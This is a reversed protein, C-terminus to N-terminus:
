QNNWWKLTQIWTPATHYTLCTSWGLSLILRSSSYGEPTMIRQTIWWCVTKSPDTLLFILILPSFLFSSILSIGLFHSYVSSTFVSLLMLWVSVHYSPSRTSINGGHYENCYSTHCLMNSYISYLKYVVLWVCMCYIPCCM